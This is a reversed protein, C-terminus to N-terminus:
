KLYYAHEWVDLVLVPHARAHDPGPMTPVDQAHVRCAVCAVAIHTLVRRWRARGGGCHYALAYRWVGCRVM